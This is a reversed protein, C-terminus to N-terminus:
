LLVSALRCIHAVTNQQLQRYHRLLPQEFGYRNSLVEFGLTKLHQYPHFTTTTFQNRTLKECNQLFQLQIALADAADAGHQEGSLDGAELTLASAHHVVTDLLACNQMTDLPLNGISRGAGRNELANQARDVLLRAGARKVM